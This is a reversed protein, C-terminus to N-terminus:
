SPYHLSTPVITRKLFSILLLIFFFFSFFLIFFSVCWGDSTTFTRVITRLTSSPQVAADVPGQVIRDTYAVTVPLSECLDTAVPYGTADPGIAGYLFPVAAHAPFSTWAPPDNDTVTIAQSTFNNNGCVDVTTWLYRVTRRKCGRTIPDAVALTVNPFPKSSLCSDIASLNAPPRVSECRDAVALPPIGPVFRPATTDVVQVTQKATAMHGCGDLVTWQRVLTEACPRGAKSSHSFSLQVIGFPCVKDLDIGANIGALVAPRQTEAEAALRGYFRTENYDCEVTIGAPVYTFVPDPYVVTRAVAKLDEHDYYSGVADADRRVARRRHGDRAHRYAVGFDTAFLDDVSVIAEQALMAADEGGDVSRRRAAAKTAGSRVVDGGALVLDAKVDVILGAIGRADRTFDAKYSGGRGLSFASVSANVNQTVGTARISPMGAAFTGDENTGPEEWTLQAISAVPVRGGLYAKGLDFVERNADTFSQLLGKFTPNDQECIYRCPSFFFFLIFIFNLEQQDNRPPFPPFFVFFFPFFPFFLFFFPFFFFIFSVCAVCGRQNYRDLNTECDGADTKKQCLKRCKSVANERDCGAKFYYACQSGYPETRLDGYINSWQTSVVKFYGDVQKNTAKIFKKMAEEEETANLVGGDRRSFWGGITGIVDKAGGWLDEGFDAIDGGFDELGDKVDNSFFDGVDNGFDVVGDKIDNGLDEAFDVFPGSFFDATESGFDEFAGGIAEGVEKSFSIGNKLAAVGDELGAKIDEGLQDFDIPSEVSFSFSPHFSLSRGGGYKSYV